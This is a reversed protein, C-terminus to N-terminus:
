ITQKSVGQNAEFSWRITIKAPSSFMWGYSQSDGDEVSTYSEESHQRLWATKAEELTTSDAEATPQGSTDKRKYGLFVLFFSKVRELPNGMGWKQKFLPAMTPLCIAVISSCAEIHLWVDNM